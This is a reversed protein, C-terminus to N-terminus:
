CSGCNSAAAPSSSEPCEDVENLVAMGLHHIEALRSLLEAKKECRAPGQPDAYVAISLLAARLQEAKAEPSM